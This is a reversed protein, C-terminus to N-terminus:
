MWGSPHDLQAFQGLHRHLPLMRQRVDTADLTAVQVQGASEGRVVLIGRGPPRPIPRIGGLVPGEAPDGSLVVATECLELLRGFFPEFGARNSGSLRRAVVVSLLLDPAPALLDAFAALASTAERGCVLDLDDIVLVHSAGPRSAPRRPDQDTRRSQGELLTAALEQVLRQAQAPDCARRHCRAAVPELSRRPDLLWVRAGSEHSAAALANLLGSRGSGSNGLVILHEGPGLGVEFPEGHVGRVGAAIRGSRSPRPLTHSAVRSPLLQIPRAAPGGRRAIAAVFEGLAHALGEVGAVGDIRPLAVQALHGGATIIRGAPRQGTRRAVQPDMSDGPDNMRLELRNAIVERLGGRLESWRGCSIALSVGVAPGASAIGALVGPLAHVPDDGGIHAAIDDIVLLIRSTVPSALRQRQCIEDHVYGIVRQALEGSTALTGVHPLGGVGALVSSASTIVHISLDKPPTSEALGLVVTALLMSRGSGPAGAVALQAAAGGLDLILAEQAGRSPLDVLAIAAGAPGRRSAAATLQNLPLAEPLPPLCIARARGTPLRQGGSGRPLGAIANDVASAVQEVVAVRLRTLRGDRALWAWGPAAPLEAAASSGIVALSEAPAFTRLCIRFRLHADLGRLKGDDLRQSSLLLHIGLSRGLRGLSTLVDLMDPSEEILEAYEDVAILLRPLPEHSEAGERRRYSDIDDVEANRLLQQRRRLEARLSACMRDVAAPDGSLNTLLGVTHPLRGFEGFAAGGKYDVLMLALEAPSSQCVAALLLTRLLESKGSGTAGVILGHPGDGGRAAERLDIAVPAGEDDLGIPLALPHEPAHRWLEAARITTAVWGQVAPTRRRLGEAFALAAPYAVADARAVPTVVAPTGPRTTLVCGQRRESAAGLTVASLVLTPGVSLLHKLAGPDGSHANALFVVHHLDPQHPQKRLAARIDGADGSICGAQPLARLWRREAPAAVAHIRVADPGYARTLSIVIARLLALHGCVVVEGGALELTIAVDDVAGHRAAADAAEAILIPDGDPDSGGALRPARRAAARGAGVRVVLGGGDQRRGWVRGSIVAALATDPSPYAAESYARQRRASETLVRIRDALHARYRDSREQWLQGRRRRQQRAAVVAILTTLAALGGSVAIILVNPSLLAFGLMGLVSLAPLLTTLWGREAEPAAPAAALEVPEPCDQEPLVEPRSAQMRALADPAAASPAPACSPGPMAAVNPAEPSLVEWNDM